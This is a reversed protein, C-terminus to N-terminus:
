EERYCPQEDESVNASLDVALATVSIAIDTTYIAIKGALLEKISKLLVVSRGRLHKGNRLYMLWAINHDFGRDAWTQHGFYTYSRGQDDRVPRISNPSKPFFAVNLAELRASLKHELTVRYPNRTIRQRIAM